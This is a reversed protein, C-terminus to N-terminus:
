PAHLDEGAGGGWAPHPPQAAAQALDGASAACPREGEAADQGVEHGSRGRLLGGCIATRGRPAIGAGIGVGAGGGPLEGAGQPLRLDPVGGGARKGFGTASTRAPDRMLDGRRHVGVGFAVMQSATAQVVGGLCQGAAHELAPREVTDGLEGGEGV